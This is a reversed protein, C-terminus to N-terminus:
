KHSKEPHFQVGYINKVNVVCTFEEGYTTTSISDEPNNCKFYYSHLFYFRAESELGNLLINNKTVRIDNWGMHPLHTSSNLKSENLKEVSGDIWSLSPLRGEDSSKALMQM